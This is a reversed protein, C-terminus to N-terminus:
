QLSKQVIIKCLKTVLCCVVTLILAMIRGGVLGSLALLIFIVSGVYSKKAQRSTDMAVHASTKDLLLQTESESEIEEEDEEEEEKTEVIEATEGTFESALHLSPQPPIMSTKGCDPIGSRRSGLKKWWRAKPHSPCEKRTTLEEIQVVVSRRRGQPPVQITSEIVIFEDTSERIEKKKKADILRRARTDDTTKRDLEDRRSLLLRIRTKLFRMLLLALVLATALFAVVKTGFAFVSILFVASCVSFTKEVVLEVGDLACIGQEGSFSSDQVPPSDRRLEFGGGGVIEVGVVEGVATSPSSSPASQEYSPSSSDAESRVRSDDGSEAAAKRDKPRRRGSRKLRDRHKVVLDALSTPFGTQLPLDSRGQKSIRLDSVLRALGGLKAKKWISPMAPSCSAGEM